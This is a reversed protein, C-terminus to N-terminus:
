HLRSVVSVSFQLLLHSLEIMDYLVLSKETRIDHNKVSVWEM